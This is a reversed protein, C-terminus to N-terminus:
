CENAAAAMKKAQLWAVLVPTKPNPRKTETKYLAKETRMWDDVEKRSTPKLGTTTTYAEADRDRRKCVDDCKAVANVIQGGAGFTYTQAEREEMAAAAAEKSLGVWGERFKSHKGSVCMRVIMICM